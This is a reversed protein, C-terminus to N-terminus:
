AHGKKKRAYSTTANACKWHTHVSSPNSGIPQSPQVVLGVIGISLRSVSLNITVDLLRDQLVSRIYYIPIQDLRADCKMILDAINHRDDFTVVAIGM